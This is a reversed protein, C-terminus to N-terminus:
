YEGISITYFVVFISWLIGFVWSIVFANFNYKKSNRDKFEGNQDQLKVTYEETGFKKIIELCLLSLFLFAFTGTLISIFYKFALSSDATKLMNSIEVVFIIHAAIAFDFGLNYDSKSGDFISKSLPTIKVYATIIVGLFPLVFPLFFPSSMINELSM